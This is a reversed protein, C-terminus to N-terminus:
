SGIAVSLLVRADIEGGEHLVNGAGVEGALTEAVDARGDHLESADLLEVGVLSGDLNTELPQILM